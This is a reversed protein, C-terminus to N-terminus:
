LLLCIQVRVEQQIDVKLHSSLYIFHLTSYLFPRMMQRIYTVYVIIYIVFL